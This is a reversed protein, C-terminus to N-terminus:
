IAVNPSQRDQQLAFALLKGRDLRPLRDPQNVLPSALRDRNQVHLVFVFDIWLVDSAAPKSGSVFRMETRRPQDPAIQRHEAPRDLIQIPGGDISRGVLQSRSLRSHDEIDFAPRLDYGELRSIHGMAAMLMDDCVDAVSTM